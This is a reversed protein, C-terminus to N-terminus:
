WRRVLTCLVALGKRAFSVFPLYSVAARQAKELARILCGWGAAASPRVAALPPAPLARAVTVERLEASSVRVHKVSRGLARLHVPAATTTGLPAFSECM